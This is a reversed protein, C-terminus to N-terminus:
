FLRRAGLIRIARQVDAVLDELDQPSYNNQVRKAKHYPGAEQTWVITLNDRVADYRISIAWEAVENGKSDYTPAPADPAM